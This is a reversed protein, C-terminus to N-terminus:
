ILHTHKMDEILIFSGVEEFFANTLIIKSFLVCLLGGASTQERNNTKRPESAAFFTTNFKCGPLKLKLAPDIVRTCYIGNCCISIEAM